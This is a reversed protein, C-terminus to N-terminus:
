AERVLRECLDREPGLLALVGDANVHQRFHEVFLDSLKVELFEAGLQRGERVFLGLVDADLRLARELGLVVAVLSLDEISKSTM